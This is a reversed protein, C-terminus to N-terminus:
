IKKNKIESFLEQMTVTKPNNKALFKRFVPLRNDAFDKILKLDLLHEPFETGIYQNAKLFGFKVYALSNKLEYWDFKLADKGTFVFLPQTEFEKPKLLNHIEANRILWSSPVGEKKSKELIKIYFDNHAPSAARFSRNKSVFEPFTKVFNNAEKISTKNIIRIATFNQGNYNNQIKM